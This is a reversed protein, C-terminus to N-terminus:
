VGDIHDSHEHTVVIGTLQSPQLGLRELRRETERVTMGNDVLIRTRGAEVVLANGQSGSGLSAFRMMPGAESSRSEFGQRVFGPLPARVPAAPPSVQASRLASRPDEGVRGLERD